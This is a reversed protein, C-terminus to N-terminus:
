LIQARLTCLQSCHSPSDPGIWMTLISRQLIVCLTTRRLVMDTLLETMEPVDLVDVVEAQVIMEISIIGM